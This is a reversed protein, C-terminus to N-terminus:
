RPAECSIRMADGRPDEYEAEEEEEDKRRRRRRMM